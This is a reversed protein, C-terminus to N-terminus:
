IRIEIQKSWAHNENYICKDINWYSKYNISNDPNFRVLYGNLDLRNFNAIWKINGNSHYDIQVGHYKGNEDKNIIDKNM